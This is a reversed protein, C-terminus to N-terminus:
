YGWRMNAKCWAAVNCATEFTRNLVCILLSKPLTRQWLIDNNKELKSKYMNASWTDDVFIQHAIESGNRVFGKVNKVDKLGLHKMACVFVANRVYAERFGIKDQETFSGVERYCEVSLESLESEEIELSFGISDIARMIEFDEGDCLILVM